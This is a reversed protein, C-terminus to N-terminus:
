ELTEKWVRDFRQDYIKSGSQAYMVICIELRDEIQNAAAEVEIKAAAKQRLLPRLAEYAYRRATRATENTLISRELTWLLSGMPGEGANADVDFGDGPWGRRDLPDDIVLNDPARVDTFLCLVVASHLAADAKLNGAALAWDGYTGHWVTDWGQRPLDPGENARAYM